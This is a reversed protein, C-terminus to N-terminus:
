STLIHDTHSPHDIKCAVGNSVFRRARM